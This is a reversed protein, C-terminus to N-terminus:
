RAASDTPVWPPRVSMATETDRAAVVTVTVMVACTGINMSMPTPRNM